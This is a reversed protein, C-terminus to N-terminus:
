QVANDPRRVAQIHSVATPQEVGRDVFYAIGVGKGAVVTIGMLKEEPKM